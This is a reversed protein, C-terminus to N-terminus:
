EYNCATSDTCGLYICSGDDLTAGAFYNAASEDTCGCTESSFSMQVTEPGMGDPVFSVHMTGNLVGDTTVQALMVM